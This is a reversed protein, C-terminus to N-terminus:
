DRFLVPFAVSLILTGVSNIVGCHDWNKKKKKKFLKWWSALPRAVGNCQKWMYKLSFKYEEEWQYNLLWHFTSFSQLLPPSPFIHRAQDSQHRFDTASIANSQNTNQGCTGSGGAIRLGYNRASNLCAALKSYPCSKKERERGPLLFKVGKRNCPEAGLATLSAVQWASLESEM